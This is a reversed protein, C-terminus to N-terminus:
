GWEQWVIQYGIGGDDPVVTVISHGQQELAAIHDTLCM